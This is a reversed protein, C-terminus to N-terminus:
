QRLPQSFAFMSCKQALTLMKFDALYSSIHNIDVHHTHIWNRSFGISILLAFSLIDSTSLHNPFNWTSPQLAYHSCSSTSCTSCSLYRLGASFSQVKSWTLQHIQMTNPVPKIKSPLVADVVEIDSPLVEFFNVKPSAYRVIELFSVANYIDAGHAVGKDATRKVSGGIGDASSKGHGSESFNWTVEKMLFSNAFHTMLWFNTKNRYQTTPGDSQFHITDIEPFM